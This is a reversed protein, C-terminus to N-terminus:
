EKETRVIVNRMAEYVNTMNQIAMNISRTESQLLELVGDNLDKELHESDMSIFVIHGFKPEYSLNTAIYLMPCDCFKSPGLVVDVWVGVNPDLEVLSWVAWVNFYRAALKENPLGGFVKINKLTTNM